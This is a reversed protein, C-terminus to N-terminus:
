RNGLHYLGILIFVFQVVIIPFLLVLELYFESEESTKL